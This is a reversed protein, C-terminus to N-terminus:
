VLCNCYVNNNFSSLSSLLDELRLTYVVDQSESSCVGELVHLLDCSFWRPTVRCQSGEFVSNRLGSSQDDIFMELHRDFVQSKVPFSM